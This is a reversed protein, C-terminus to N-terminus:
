ERGMARNLATEIAALDFTRWRAAVYRDPRILYTTGPRADYRQWALGEGDISVLTAAKPATGGPGFSLLTFDRGLRDILWGDGVPADLMARGPPPGGTWDGDVDPTDLPSGTHATPVSLRGSNILARAFPFDRAL